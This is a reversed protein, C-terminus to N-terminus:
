EHHRSWIAQITASLTMPDFPKAIVDLVGMVKYRAVEQPQVKATMFIAPTDATGPLARLAQLTGPGDMGSMMVDLLLLDPAFGPAARVAEEGSSCLEVTFGGIAELALRAVEQIDAEDEVMLIRAPSAAETTM